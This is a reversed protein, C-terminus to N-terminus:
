QNSFQNKIQPPIFQLVEAPNVQLTKCLQEISDINITKNNIFKNITGFSFYRAAKMRLSPRILYIAELNLFYEIPMISLM